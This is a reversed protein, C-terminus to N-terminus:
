LFGNLFYYAGYEASGLALKIAARRDCSGLHLRKLGWMAPSTLHVDIGSMGAVISLGRM